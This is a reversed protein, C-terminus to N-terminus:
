SPLPHGPYEKKLLALAQEALSPQKLKHKFLIYTRCLAKARVKGIPFLAIYMGYSKVADAFREKKEFLVASQYINKESLKEILGKEKAEEYCARLAEINGDIIMRDLATNYMSVAENTKGQEGYIRALILPADVNDPEERITALLLPIAEDINGEDMKRTAERMSFSMKLKEFSDEVMPAVYKKELHLYKMAAGVLAGFVFGGIHAWHATGSDGGVPACALEILFWLPLAIGAYIAFTGVYPRTFLLWIFYAFRVKTKFHRVMFAGMIGAIAGSAGVLPITSQPSMLTHLLVAFFGSILYLGLFIPWSWDDEINCGVLWLYLMNFFLHLFGAHIFMSTIVKIFDFKSPKLGYKEYVINNKTTQFDNYLRSWTDYDKSGVPIIDGDLIQERVKEYDYNTLARPDNELLQYMYRTEIERLERDLDVLRDMQRSVAMSTILYIITNLAILGITIYPLRRVGEESGVPFFFFMPHLIVCNGASDVCLNVKGSKKSYDFAM